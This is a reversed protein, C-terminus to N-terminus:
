PSYKQRSRTLTGSNKRASGATYIIIQLAAVRRRETFRSKDLNLFISPSSHSLLGELTIRIWFTIENWPEM